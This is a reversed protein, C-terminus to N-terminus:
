GTEGLTEQQIGSRRSRKGGANKDGKEKKGRAMGDLGTVFFWLWGRMRKRGEWKEGVWV